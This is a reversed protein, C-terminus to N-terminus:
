PNTADRVRRIAGCPRLLDARPLACRHLRPAVGRTITLFGPDGLFPGVLAAM